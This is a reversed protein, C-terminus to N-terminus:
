TVRSRISGPEVVIVDDLHLGARDCALTARVLDGDLRPIGRCEVVVISEVDLTTSSAAIVEHIHEDLQADSVSFLGVGRRQADLLLVILADTLPRRMALACVSLADQATTIPDRHPRPVIIPPLIELPM